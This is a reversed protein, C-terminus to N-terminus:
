SAMAPMSTPKITHMSGGVPWSTRRTIEGAYEERIALVEDMSDLFLDLLTPDFHKGRDARMIELTKDLPFAPKYVRKNTLVDFM